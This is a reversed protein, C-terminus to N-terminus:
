DDPLNGLRGDCFECGSFFSSELDYGVWGTSCYECSDYATPEFYTGCAVCVYGADSELEAVTVESDLCEGCHPPEPEDLQEKPSLYRVVNLSEFLEERTHEEGCQCEAPLEYLPHRNGCSFEALHGDAGCVECTFKAITRIPRELEASMFNCSPCEALAGAASLGSLKPQLVDYRAKLYPRHARLSSEVTQIRAAFKLFVDRWRVTLLHHLRYWALCQEAEVASLNTPPVFHLVQNRHRFVRAFVEQEHNLSTGAVTAVAACIDSAQITYVDGSQVASWNFGHPNAAILTWHEAFLRAKLLLELGTAFHAVSFTPESALESAAAEIFRLGNEVLADFVLAKQDDTPVM